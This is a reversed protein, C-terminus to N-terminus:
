VIPSERADGGGHVGGKGSSCQDERERCYLRVSVTIWSAFPRTARNDSM